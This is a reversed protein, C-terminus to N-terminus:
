EGDKEQSLRTKSDKHTKQYEVLPILWWRKDQPTQLSTAISSENQIFYEDAKKDYGNNLLWAYYDRLFRTENICKYIDQSYEKNKRQCVLALNWFRLVIDWKGGLEINAGNELLFLTKPLSNSCSALATEGYNNKINIDIGAVLLVKTMPSIGYYGGYKLSATLLTDYQYCDSDVGIKPLYSLNGGHKLVFKLREVQIKEAKDAPCNYFDRMIEAQFFTGSALCFIVSDGVPRIGFPLPEEVSVNPDAGAIILARFIEDNAAFAWMLPTMNQKGKYNVDIGKDILSKVKQCNNEEIAKCLEKIDSPADSFFDDINWNYVQYFTKASTIQISCFFLATFLLISSFISSKFIM